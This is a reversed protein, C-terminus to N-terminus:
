KSGNNKTRKINGMIFINLQNRCEKDCWDNVKHKEDNTHQHAKVHKYEIEIGKFYSELIQSLNYHINDYKKGFLGYKKISPKDNTFVYIANMSDTNVIIKECNAQINHKNTFYFANVICKMECIVPKSVKDRLMGSYFFSGGESSIWFAFGGRNYKCSYSADTNITVVKM